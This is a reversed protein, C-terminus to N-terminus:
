ALDGLWQKTDSDSRLLPPYQFLQRASMEWDFTRALSLAEERSLEWQPLIEPVFVSEFAADRYGGRSDLLNIWSALATLYQNKLWDHNFASRRRQWWTM